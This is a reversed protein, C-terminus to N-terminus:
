RYIIPLEVAGPFLGALSKPWSWVEKWLRFSCTKTNELAAKWQLPGTRALDTTDRGSLIRARRHQSTATVLILRTPLLFSTLLEHQLMARVHGALFTSEITALVDRTEHDMCM